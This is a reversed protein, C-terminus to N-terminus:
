TNLLQLLKVELSDLSDEIYEKNNYILSCRKNMWEYVYHEDNYVHLKYIMSRGRLDITEKRLQTKM